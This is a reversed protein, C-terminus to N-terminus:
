GDARAELLKIRGSMQRMADIMLGQIGKTSYFVDGSSEDVSIVGCGKLVDLKEDVWEQLVNKFSPFRERDAASINTTRFAELLEMDDHDDLAVLTTNTIHMDGDGKVIVRATGANTIALVNGTNGLSTTGSGSKLFGEIMVAAVSASTDTTVENTMLGALSLGIDDETLGQITLGGSGASSKLLRGYTDTETTLTMGHAVDSSKVSFIETDAGSQDITLNTGIIDTDGNGKVLLRTTFRNKLAFINAGDAHDTTTTGSKLFSSVVAGGDSSTTTTTDETTIFASMRVGEDGESLGAIFLGGQGTAQKQMYGYTDTEAIATMGHAIDSSKLSLIEDDNAGQNITLGSDNSANITASGMTIANNGRHLTIHPTASVSSGSSLLLNDSASDDCTLNWDVSGHLAFHIGCDASGAGSNEVRIVAEGDVAVHVEEAATGTSGVRMTGAAGITMQNNTESWLFLADQGPSNNTDTYFIADSILDSAAFTSLNIESLAVQRGDSLEVLGTGSGIALDEAFIKSYKITETM